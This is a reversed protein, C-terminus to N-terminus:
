PSRNFSGGPSGPALGAGRVVAEIYSAALRGGRSGIGRGELLDSALFRLHGDFAAAPFTLPVPAQAAATASAAAVLGLVSCVRLMRM